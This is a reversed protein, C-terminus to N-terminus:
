FTIFKDISNSTVVNNKTSVRQKADAVRRDDLINVVKEQFAKQTKSFVNMNINKVNEIDVEEIFDRYVTMPYEIMKYVKNEKSSKRFEEISLAGGFMKLSCRPPAPSLKDGQLDILGQIYENKLAKADDLDEGFMSISLSRELQQRYMTKDLTFTGTLKQYLFDATAKFSVDKLEREGYATMCAFSCFVGKVKFKKTKINYDLPLGIPVSEFKHCCWWCCVDTSHLWEKNEVFEELVSFYGTQRKDKENVKNKTDTKTKSKETVTQILNNLLEDDMHLNELREVLKIDQNMRAELREEYLNVIDSTKDMSSEIYENLVDNDNISSSFKTNDINNAKETGFYETKLVGYTIEQAIYKEENDKIDLHLIAKDNDQIVTTLPIKKRISSSFYKVAAKRGRKKKPKVEEEVKEKKKRGRKKKEPENDGEVNLADIGITGETAILPVPLPYKRPRGKKKKIVDPTSEILDSM